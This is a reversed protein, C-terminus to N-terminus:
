RSGKGNDQKAKVKNLKKMDSIELVCDIKSSMEDIPMSWLSGLKGLLIEDNFRRGSEGKEESLQFIKRLAESLDVLAQYQEGSLSVDIDSLPFGSKKMYEIAEVSPGKGNTDIGLQSLLM